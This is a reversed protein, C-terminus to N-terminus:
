SYDINVYAKFDFVRIDQSRAYDCLESDGSILLDCKKAMELVITDTLGLNQFVWNQVIVKSEIYKENSKNIIERYIRLYRNKNEGSYDNLLNDVETNINPCSFIETYGDLIDILKLYHKEKYISTRKHKGIDCPNIKGVILLTLINTDVIVSSM